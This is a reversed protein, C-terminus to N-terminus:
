RDLFQQPAELAHGLCYARRNPILAAAVRVMLEEPLNEIRVARAFRGAVKGRGDVAIKPGIITGNGEVANFGARRAFPSALVDM